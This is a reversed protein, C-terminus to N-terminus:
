SRPGAPPYYFEWCQAYDFVTRVFAILPVGIMLRADNRGTPPFGGILLLFLALIAAAVLNIIAWKGEANPKSKQSFALNAAFAWLTDFMLLAVLSWAFFGPSSLFLALALLLCSEIFLLAFDALLAGSRIQTGGGEIYAVDLHRLAGHYFPVLTFLFALLFPLLRYKISIAPPSTDIVSVISL